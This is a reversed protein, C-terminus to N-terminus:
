DHSHYSRNKYIFAYSMNFDTKEHCKAFPIKTLHLSKLIKSYPISDFVKKYTFMCDTSM